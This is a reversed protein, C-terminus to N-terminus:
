GSCRGTNGPCFIHIRHQKSKASESAKQFISRMKSMIHAHQYDLYVWAAEDSGDLEILM